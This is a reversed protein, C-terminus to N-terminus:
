ERFEKKRATAESLTLGNIGSLSDNAYRCALVFDVVIFFVSGELDYWDM